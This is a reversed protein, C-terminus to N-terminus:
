RRRGRPAPASAPPHPPAGAPVDIRIAGLAMPDAPLEARGAPQANLKLLYALVDAYQDPALGGPDNKPMRESVYQFLEGLPRGNWAAAFSPGSHSAAAHCSRCFGAYVDAGRDAQPASYVGAATTRTAGTPPPAGPPPQAGARAAAVLAVSLALAACAGGAARPTTPPRRTVPM